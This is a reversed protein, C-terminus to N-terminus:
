RNSSQNAWVQRTSTEFEAAQANTASLAAKGDASRPTFRLETPGLRPDAKRRPADLLYAEDLVLIPPEVARRSLALGEAESRSPYV